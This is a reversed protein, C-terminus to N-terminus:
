TQKTEFVDNGSMTGFINPIHGWRRISSASYHVGGGGENWIKTVCTEWEENRDRTGVTKLVKHSFTSVNSSNQSM